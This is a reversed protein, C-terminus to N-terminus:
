PSRQNQWWLRRAAAIRARVEPPHKRGKRTLSMKARTELSVRRSVAKDRIKQKTEESHKYTGARARNCEALRAKKRAAEEPGYRQEFTLGLYLERLRAKHVDSITVKGKLAHSIKDKTDQSMKKGTMRKRNSEGIRARGATTLVCVGKRNASRKAREEESQPRPGRAKASASARERSEKGWVLGFTGEGGDTMNYGLPIKSGIEKIYQVELRRLEEISSVATLVEWSFSEFGYKRIARHLILASGAISAKRHEAKRVEFAQVTMGVYVKGNVLNRAAYIIGSRGDQKSQKGLSKM